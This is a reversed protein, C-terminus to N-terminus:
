ALGGRLRLRVESGGHRGPAGYWGWGLLGLVRIGAAIAQRTQEDTGAMHEGQVRVGNRTSDRRIPNCTISLSLECADKDSYM